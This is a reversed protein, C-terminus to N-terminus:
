PNSRKEPFSSARASPCSTPPVFRPKTRKIFALARSSPSSSVCYEFELPTTSSSLQDLAQSRAASVLYARSFGFKRAITAVRILRTVQGAGVYAFTYTLLFWRKVVYAPASPTFVPQVVLAFWQRTAEARRCPM